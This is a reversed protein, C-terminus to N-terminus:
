LVELKIKSVLDELTKEIVSKKLECEWIVIVKWGENQLTAINRRDREYNKLIKPRWYEENSAPWVFRPCNHM